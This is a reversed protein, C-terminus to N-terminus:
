QLYRWSKKNKELVGHRMKKEKEKNKLVRGKQVM